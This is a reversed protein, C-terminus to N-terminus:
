LCAFLVECRDIGDDNNMGRAIPQWGSRRQKLALGHWQRQRLVKRDPDCRKGCRDCVLWRPSAWVDRLAALLFKKKDIVNELKQSAASTGRQIRENKTRNM